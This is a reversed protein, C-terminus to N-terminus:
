CAILSPSLYLLNLAVCYFAAGGPKVEPGGSRATSPKGEGEWSDACRGQGPAVHGTPLTPSPENVGQEGGEQMGRHESWFPM